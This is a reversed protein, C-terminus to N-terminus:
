PQQRGGPSLITHTYLILSLITYAGVQGQYGLKNFQQRVFVEGATAIMREYSSEGEGEAGEEEGEAGKQVAERAKAGAAGGLYIPKFM